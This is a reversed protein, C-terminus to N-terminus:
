CWTLKGSQGSLWLQSQLTVSTARACSRRESFSWPRRRFSLGGAYAIKDCFKTNDHNVRKKFPKWLANFSFWGAKTSGEIFTMRSEYLEWRFDDQDQKRLAKLSLWGAKMSSEVISLSSLSSLWHAQHQSIFTGVAWYRSLIQTVSGTLALDAIIRKM